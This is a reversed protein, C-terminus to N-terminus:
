QSLNRVVVFTGTKRIVAGDKGTLELIYFYLGNGLRSPPTWETVSPYPDGYKGRDNIEAIKRYSITFVTIKVKDVAGAHTYRFKIVDGTSPNPFTYSDHLDLQNIIMTPTITSTMTITPTPPTGTITPTPSPNCPIFTKGPTMASNMVFNGATSLNSISLSSSACSGPVLQSSSDTNDVLSWSAWSIKVGAPNNVTDAGDMIDLFQQAVPYNDGGNGSSNSAGWETCFIPLLNIYPTLMGINHTGAYFHFTYLINPYALQSNVVEMGSGPSMSLQSWHPTGVIIVSDPAVARIKPIIVNAYAKIVPWTVTSGNPENCIEYLVNPTDKYLNAMTTFFIGSNTEDTTPDGDDLIHWDIIAYIGRAVCKSVLDEVDSTMTTPDSDYGGQATYMAIRFVDAQMTNAVFDMMTDSYCSYHWQIGHSSVGRLQVPKGCYNVLQLGSVSLKGNESVPTACIVAPIILFLVILIGTIKKM